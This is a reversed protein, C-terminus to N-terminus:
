PIQRNSPEQNWNLVTHTLMSTFSGVFRLTSQMAYSKPGIHDKGNPKMPKVSPDQNLSYVLKPFMKQYTQYFEFENQTLVAEFASEGNETDETVLPPPTATSSALKWRSEPRGAAWNVEAQQNETSTRLSIHCGIPGFSEMPEM